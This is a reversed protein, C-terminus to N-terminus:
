VQSALSLYRARAEQINIVANKMPEPNGNCEPVWKKIYSGTPDHAKSQSIPNFIRFYPAADIGLGASWQWGGVNQSTDGDLLQQRFYEEGWQWPILMLKTLFQSVIMRGRNSMWGTANLERMCADIVPFGTKGEKWKTFLQKDQNWNFKNWKADFPEVLMRPNHFLLDAMFDRWAIEAIWKESGAPNAKKAQNMALRPSLVGINFYYSLKSVGSSDLSNRGTDYNSLKNKLFHQLAKQASSEGTPPLQIESNPVDFDESITKPSTIQKPPPLITPPALTKWKNYYHTFVTYPKGDPKIVSGPEQVYNGPFWIINCDSEVKQDRFVGYPTYSKIAYVNASHKKAIAPLVEWPTGEEITLTGGLEKYSNKLRIANEIFWAKRRGSTKNLINPDLNVVGLVEGSKCAESLAPHDHTRLDARHWVITM